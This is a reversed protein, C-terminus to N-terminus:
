TRTATCWLPGLSNEQLHDIRLGAKRIEGYFEDATLPNDYAPTLADFTDHMSFEALQEEDLDGYADYYQYPIWQRRLERGFRGFRDLLRSLRRLPPGSHEVLALVWEPPLRTTLPRYKYKYAKMREPTRQYCHAFLIGGPALKRIIARLSAIPSPTHQLVRHCYVVDFSEDPVPIELISAQFVTLRSDALFRAARDVSTSLDFSYIESFPLKLLVETDDGGGMGCELVRKGSLEYQDLHSRSMVLDFKTRGTRRSDSLTDTWHSWQLGFSKAYHRDTEVFRWLGDRLHAVEGRSGLLRDGQRRLADQTIPDVFLHPFDSSASDRM